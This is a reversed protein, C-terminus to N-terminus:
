LVRKRKMWEDDNKVRANEDAFVSSAEEFSVHHKRV